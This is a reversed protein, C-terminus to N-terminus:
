EELCNLVKKIRVEKETEPLDEWGEPVGVAGGTAIELARAEDMGLVQAMKVIGALAGLEKKVNGSGIGDALKKLPKLNNRNLLEHIISQYTYSEWTRNYYTYKLQDLERGTNNDSITAYHGWSYPSNYVWAKITYDGLTFETYGTLKAKKSLM